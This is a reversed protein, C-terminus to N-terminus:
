HCSLEHHSEIRPCVTALPQRLAVIHWQPGNSHFNSRMQGCSSRLVWRRSRLLQRWNRVFNTSTEFSEAFRYFEAGRHLRQLCVNTRDRKGSSFSPTGVHFQRARAAENRGQSSSPRCCAPLRAQAARRFGGSGGRIGSSGRPHRRQAVSSAAAAVSASGGSRGHRRQEPSAAAARGFSRSLRRLLLRDTCSSM